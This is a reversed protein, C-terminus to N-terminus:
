KPPRLLDFCELPINRLIFLLIFLILLIVSFPYLGPIKWEKGTLWEYFFRIFLVIMVPIIPLILPHYRLSRAFEGHVLYYCARTSGCGPCYIGTLSKFLCRPYWGSDFPSFFFLTVGGCAAVLLFLILAILKRRPWRNGSLNNKM